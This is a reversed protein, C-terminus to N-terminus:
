RNLKLPNHFFYEVRSSVSGDPLVYSIWAKYKGYKLVPLTGFIFRHYVEPSVQGLSNVISGQLDRYDRYAVLGADYTFPFRFSAVRLSGDSLKSLYTQSPSFARYPPVGIAEEDRNTLRIAGYPYGSYVLPLVTGTFYDEQLESQLSLLPRQQTSAVGIVEAEDFAEKGQVDVGLTIAEGADLALEERQKLSKIKETFTAFRSTSFNYSLISQELETNLQARAKDGGIHLAGEGREASQSAEMKTASQEQPRYSLELRYATSTKLQPLTFELRQEAERYTFDSTIPTEGEALFSLRYAFGQDFLYKQGLQLQIYGRSSERPLLYRQDLVPYAYVINQVPINQPAGGTTFSVQKEEVAPKGSTQVQKWSGGVLEEFAVRVVATLRSNPPLVEKPQFRVSQQDKSWILKGQILAGQQDKVHFDQLQIRYMKQEGADNSAEFSKGMAVNFTAEPSTFVSVAEEGSSPALDNIMPEDVPSSGPLTLDCEEGITLKFRAKGKLLGLVNLDVGLYGKFFTPDPLGAQLLAAAGGKIVPIRTRLFWLKIKM